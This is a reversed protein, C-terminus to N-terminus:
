EYVAFRRVTGPDVGRVNVWRGDSLLQGAPPGSLIATGGPALLRRAMPVVVDPRGACRMVVVDFLGVGAAALREARQNVVRLGSLQLERVVAALFSARRERSEILTVELESRVIKIPVGPLGAGSGLDAISGSHPPLLPLFLLSDLILNDVIWDPDSSGILRQAKSWKILLFLYKEFSGAERDTIPRGLIGHAGTSLRRLARGVDTTHGGQPGSLGPQDRAGHSERAGEPAGHVM